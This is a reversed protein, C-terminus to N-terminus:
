KFGFDLNKPRPMFKVVKRITHRSRLGNPTSFTETRMRALIQDGEAFAIQRTDIQKWFDSDELTANFNREGDTFGWKHDQNFSLRVIELLADSTNDLAAEGEPLEFEFYPEDENTVIESNDGAKIELKEIGEQRLPSVIAEASQRAEVDSYLEFVSGAIVTTENGIQISVNGNNEFVIQNPEPKRKKLWKILKFLGVGPTAYFFVIELIEKADKIAPHLKLFAKASELLSQDVIFDIHFSGRKFEGRVRLSVDTEEGNLIRNAKQLLTGTALLAPALERVDMLGNRLDAGDYSITLETSSVIEM